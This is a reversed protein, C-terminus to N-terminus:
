KRTATAPLVQGGVDFGLSLSDGAPEATLTIPTMAGMVDAEYQMVLTSGKKSIASITNMAGDGGIEATITGGAEKVILDVAIPGGPTEVSATWAGIFPKADAPTVTQADSALPLVLLMALAAVKVKSSIDM